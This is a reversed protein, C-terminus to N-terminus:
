FGNKEFTWFNVSINFERPWCLWVARSDSPDREVGAALVDGATGPRVLCRDSLALVPAQWAGDAPPSRRPAGHRRELGAVPPPRAGFPLLTGRRGRMAERTWGSGAPCLPKAMNDSILRPYSEHLTQHRSYFVFLRM